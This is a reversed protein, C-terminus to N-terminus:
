LLQWCLLRRARAGKVYERVQKVNDREPDISIFV